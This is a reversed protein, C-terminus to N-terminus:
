RHEPSPQDEVLIRAAPTPQPKVPRGELKVLKQEALTQLQRRVTSEDKGLRKALQEVTQRPERVILELLQKKAGLEPTKFLWVIEKPIEVRVGRDETDLEVVVREKVEDPLALVATYLGLVIVRMGGSLLVTVRDYERALKLLLKKVEVVLTTFDYVKEGLVYLEVRADVKGAIDAVYKYASLTKETPTATVLVVLDGGGIGHRIIARVVFKEDFGFSAVLARGM